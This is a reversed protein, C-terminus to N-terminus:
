DAFEDWNVERYVVRYGTAQEIERQSDADIGESWETQIQLDAKMMPEGNGGHAIHLNTEIGIMGLSSLTENLRMRGFPPLGRPRALNLRCAWDVLQANAIALAPDAPAAARVDYQVGPYTLQFENPGTARVVADMGLRERRKPDVVEANAQAALRSLATMAVSCRTKTQRDLLVVQSATLDFLTWFRPETPSVSHIVGGSFINKHISNPQGHGARFIKTTVVFEPLEVSSTQLSNPQVHGAMQVDQGVANSAM